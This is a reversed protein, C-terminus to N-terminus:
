GAFVVSYEGAVSAGSEEFTGDAAVPLVDALGFTFSRADHVLRVAILAAGAAEAFAEFDSHVFVGDLM